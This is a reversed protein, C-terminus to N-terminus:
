DIGLELSAASKRGRAGNKLFHSFSEEDAPEIKIIQAGVLFKEMSLHIGVKEYRRGMAQLSVKGNPLDIEINLMREQGVLYKEQLRINPVLFALGSRSIDVTEGLICATKALERNRETRIDPEFWIKIAAIHKRRSSVLRESLSKNLKAVLNRIM